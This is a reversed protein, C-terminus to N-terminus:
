PRVRRGPSPMLPAVELDAAGKPERVAHAATRSAVAQAPPSGAPEGAGTGVGTCATAGLAMLALLGLAVACSRGLAWRIWRRGNVM